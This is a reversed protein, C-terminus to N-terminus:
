LMARVAVLVPAFVVATTTMLIMFVNISSGAADKFPDGATYKEVHNWAGGTNSLIVEMLVGSTLAGALMSGLAQTGMFIGVALPALFALLGPTIIGKLAEKTGADVCKAYAPKSTGATIGSDSQFQKRVNEIIAVATKGSSNMTIASFLVPLMAGFLLTGIVVPNLLNVNELEAATAYSLLLAADTLAAAAIAFGKGTAANSSGTSILRDTVAMAGEQLRAIRAIEGANVCVPGFADIATIMATTSLMGVAALSIGYYDGFGNAALIAAAIVAMPWLTSLMGIGYESIMLYGTQSGGAVKKLHRSNGSTYTNTIKGTVAGALMGIVVSFANNFNGFFIYSLIVSFLVVLVNGLYKGRNLASSPNQKDSGRVFMIGAIAALIGVAAIALPFVTGEFAPLDYPYGIDPKIVRTAAGIIVAAIIAGSYSEFLDSGLGEANGIYEGAYGAIAAPNRPDGQPVGSEAKGILSAAADSAKKYIGGAVRGFLAATSAGLGFGTIVAASDVGLIIFVGGIGFLGLGATCLGMVTGSRFAIKLAQNIGENMAANATRASGKVAARIGFFGALVSFLAGLVYLAATIWDIAFGLIVFLALIIFSMAKYERKLFAMAGERIYDSLEKMRDSGEEAKGVWSSLSYAFVLALFAIATASIALVKMQISGKLLNISNEIKIEPSFLKLPANLV